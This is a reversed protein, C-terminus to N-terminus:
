VEIRDYHYQSWVSSEPDVSFEILITVVGNTLNKVKLGQKIRTYTYNIVDIDPSPGLTYLKKDQETQWMIDDVDLVEEIFSVSKRFTVLIKFIPWPGLLLLLENYGPYEDKAELFLKGKDPNDVMIVSGNNVEQPRKDPEYIAERKGLKKELYYRFRSLVVPNPPLISM